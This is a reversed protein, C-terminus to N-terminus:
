PVSIGRRASATGLLTTFNVVGYSPGWRPCRWSSVRPSPALSVGDQPIVDTLRIVPQLFVRVILGLLTLSGVTGMEKLSTKTIVRM